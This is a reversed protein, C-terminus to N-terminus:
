RKDGANYADFTGSEMVRAHREARAPTQRYWKSMRMNRGAAAYNGAGILQLTNQFGLLGSVGMQYAMSILVARRPGNCQQFWPYGDIKDTIAKVEERLHAYAVDRSWHMQYNVLAAGKPGIRTGIGITPYGESCYYPDARYGEEICLLDEVTEIM